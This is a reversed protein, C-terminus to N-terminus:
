SRDETSCSRKFSKRLKDLLRNHFKNLSNQSATKPPSSGLSKTPSTFSQSSQSNRSSARSFHQKQTPVSMVHQLTRHSPSIFDSGPSTSLSPYDSRSNESAKRSRNNNSGESIRRQKCSGYIDYNNKMIPM